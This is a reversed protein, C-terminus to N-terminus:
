IGHQSDAARLTQSKCIRIWTNQSPLRTPRIITTFNIWCSNCLIACISVFNFPMLMCVSSSWRPLTAHDVAVAIFLFVNGIYIHMHYVYTGTHAVPTKSVRLVCAHYVETSTLESVFSSLQPEEVDLASGHACNKQYVSDVLTSWVWQISQCKEFLDVQLHRDNNSKPHEFHESCSIGCKKSTSQQSHKLHFKSDIIKKRYDM